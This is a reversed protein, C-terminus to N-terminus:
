QHEDERVLRAFRGPYRRNLDALLNDFRLGVVKQPNVILDELDLGGLLQSELASESVEGPQRLALPRRRMKAASDRRVIVQALTLQHSPTDTGTQPLRAVIPELVVDDDPISGISDGAIVDVAGNAALYLRFARWLSANSRRSQGEFEEFNLRYVPLDRKGALVDLLIDFDERAVTSSAVNYRGTFSTGWLWAEITSAKSQLDYHAGLAALPVLQTAYPLWESGRCGLRALFDCAKLTSELYKNWDTRITDAELQLVAPRRIDRVTNLALAQIVVLGDEGLFHRLLPEQDRAELWVERLNWDNRYSRAVLLDFISLRMGTKNIRGFIRAIAAPELTNDLMMAPFKYSHANSLVQRYLRSLKSGVTDRRDKSLREVISDRWEYFDAANSAFHLPLLEGRAVQEQVQSSDFKTKDIATLADEILEADVARDLARDVTLCWVKKGTGKLAHYLSTLRQQGDLVVYQIGPTLPPSGEFNRLDFFSPRGLMLLLSGAPWGSLVTALLSAVDPENWDFDRQFNPLGVRGGDIGDLMSVLDLDRSYSQGGDTM